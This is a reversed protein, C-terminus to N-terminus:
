NEILATKKGDKLNIQISDGKKLDDIGSVIIGNKEILAYGRELMIRPDAIKLQHGIRDLRNKEELLMVKSQM